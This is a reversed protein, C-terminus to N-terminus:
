MLMEGPFMTDDALSMGDRLSLSAIHEDGWDIKHFAFSLNYLYDDRVSNPGLLHLRDTLSSFQYNDKTGLDKGQIHWDKASVMDILDSVATKDTEIEFKLWKIVEDPPEDWNKFKYLKLDLRLDVKGFLLTVLKAPLGPYDDKDCEEVNPFPLEFVGIHDFNFFTLNQRYSRVRFQFSSPPIYGKFVIDTDNQMYGMVIRGFEDKVLNTAIAFKKTFLEKTKGSTTSAPPFDIAAFFLVFSIFKAAGTSRPIYAVHKYSVNLDNGFSITSYHSWKNHNKFHQIADGIQHKILDQAHPHLAPTMQDFLRFNEDPKQQTRM